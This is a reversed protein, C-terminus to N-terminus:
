ALISRDQSRECWRIVLFEIVYRYCASEKGDRFRDKDSAVNKRKYSYMHVFNDM